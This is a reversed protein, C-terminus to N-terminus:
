MKFLLFITKTTTIISLCQAMNVDRIREEYLDKKTNESTYYTENCEFLVQETDDWVM